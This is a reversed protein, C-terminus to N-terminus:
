LGEYQSPNADQTQPLLYLDLKDNSISRGAEELHVKEPWEDLPSRRTLQESTLLRLQTQFFTSTFWTSIIWAIALWLLLTELQKKYINLEYKM